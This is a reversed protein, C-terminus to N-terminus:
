VPTSADGSLPSAPPPTAASPTAASLATRSEHRKVQGQQVRLRDQAQRRLDDFAERLAVYVDEHQVRNVTLEHGPITLDIRVAYHRGQHRHKDVQEITVRCAMLDQRFRELHAVKRRVAAEVAESPTLGIFRLDLPQKM